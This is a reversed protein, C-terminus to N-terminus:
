IDRLSPFFTVCIQTTRLAVQHKISIQGRAVRGQVVWNEYVSKVWASRSSFQSTVKVPFVMKQQLHANFCIVPLQQVQVQLRPLDLDASKWRSSDPSEQLEDVTVNMRQKQVLSGWFSVTNRTLSSRAVNHNQTLPTILQAIPQRTTYM